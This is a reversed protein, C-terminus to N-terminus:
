CSVNVPNKLFKSGKISSLCEKDCEYLGVISEVQVVIIWNFEINSFETKFLIDGEWEGWCGIQWTTQVHNEDIGHM